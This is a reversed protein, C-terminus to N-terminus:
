VVLRRVFQRRAVMVGTVLMALLVALHGLAPAPHWSGLAAGRALENAHWLPSIWALWRIGIPIRDIPFYAGSFLTMPLVVFRFLVNFVADSDIRATLAVVWAACAAALLAAVPIMLLGSLRGAAGFALLVIYYVVAGVVARSATFVTQADAMQHPRVPTCLVGYFMRHWKFRDMVPWTSEIMAVQLAAATLLAPAIYDIYRVGGLAAGGAGRNILTGLGIGMAVLFLSPTVLSELIASFFFKRWSRVLYEWVAFTGGRRSAAAPAPTPALAQTPTPTPTPRM